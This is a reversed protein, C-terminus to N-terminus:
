DEIEGKSSETATEAPRDLIRRVTRLLVDPNYPKNIIEDCYELAEKARLSDSTYGSSFLIKQRPNIKKIAKFADVGGLKPMVIDLIVLGFAGPSKEFEEVAAEGDRVALVKYGAKELVRTVLDQVVEEDEALLIRETGGTVPGSIKTGVDSAPREKLPFYVKITSGMPSESYVHILGGHKKVIGYVTAMGLGTGEGVGKTTFFPEFMHEMVEGTMGVGSDTVTLLVYRGPIAWPHAAIYGGNVVVNETELTLTGGGPMADRANVCLNMIVQEIQTRDAHITGLNYGSILELDINEGIVRRLLKVMGGIVDNLNLDVPEVEQQRGFVMLKAVLDAARNAANKIEEVDSRLDDNGELANYVIDSYGIIGTLLNNFDHAIGGALRGIAELKQSHRLQEEVMRQQTMDFIYGRIAMLGGYDDFEGIANMQAYVNRGDQRKLSMEHSSLKGFEKIDSIFKMLSQKNAFISKFDGSLAQKVTDFGFIEAFALNCDLIQGDVTTIFDGTLDEEFFRRYREESARLAEEALKSDTVDRIVALVIRKNGFNGESLTLEVPFTKGDASVATSCFPESKVGISGPRSLVKSLASMHEHRSSEAILLEVAKGLMESETRDFMKEAAANFLKIEGRSDIVIMGDKSANVVARFKEESERIANHALKLETINQLTAFVCVTGDALSIRKKVARFYLLNGFRDAVQEIEDTINGSEIIEKDEKLRKAILEQPEGKQEWFQVINKGIIEDTNVGFFAAYSNNALRVTGNKERVAIMNPSTDLVTKLMQRHSELERSALKFQTVDEVIGDYCVINGAEDYVAKASERVYVVKGDKTVWATELGLVQGDREMLEKFEARTFGHYHGWDELNKKALEELSSYNLAKLIAPNAMLIRGDPTTRYIGIPAHEFLERYKKETDALTVNTKEYVAQARIKEIAFSLDGCLEQLLELEEGDFSDPEVSYLNLSGITRGDVKLPLAASSAYGRQIANERWPKLAPDTAINAAVVPEGTRIARGTPGRGRESDDWSIGAFDLYGEEHGAFGAVSVSKAADNEAIGVWAMKYGGSQVCINCVEKIIASESKQRILAQNCDSLTKHARAKRMLEVELSKRETLDRVIKVFGEIEGRQGYVATLVASAWFKTGDRRIRWGESEVRGDRVATELNEKPVGAMNEPEGYFISFHSGFAEREKYGTIRAAGENWSKIFGGADLVMMAYEAVNAFLTENAKVIAALKDLALIRAAYARAYVLYFIFGTVAVFFFGKVIQVGTIREHPVLSQVINDSFFIWAGALLIYVAAAVPPRLGAGATGNTGNQHRNGSGGEGKM